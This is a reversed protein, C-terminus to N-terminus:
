LRVWPCLMVNLGGPTGIGLPSLSYIGGIISQMGGMTQSHDVDADGGIIQSQDANSRQIINPVNKHDESSNPSFFEEIIPSSM